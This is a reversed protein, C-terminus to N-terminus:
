EGTPLEDPRLLRHCEFVTLVEVAKPTRRYVIRYNDVILERLGSEPIEPLRRGQEPYEALADGRDILKDVLRAAARAPPPHRWAVVFVKVTLFEGNRLAGFPFEPLDQQAHFDMDAEAFIHNADQLVVQARLVDRVGDQLSLLFESVEDKGRFLYGTNFLEPLVVTAETVNKLLSKAARVNEKVAGFKPRLQLFGIKL